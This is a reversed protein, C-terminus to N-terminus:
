LIECYRNNRFTIQMSYEKFYDNSKCFRMFFVLQWPALTEDYEIKLVKIRREYNSIIHYIHESMVAALNKASIDLDGLSLLGTGIDHTNILAKIHAKVSEITDETYPTDTYPDLTHIVKDIFSM